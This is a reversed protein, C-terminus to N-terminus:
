EKKQERKNKHATIITRSSANVTIVCGDIRIYWNKGAREMQANEDLMKTRCWEVPDGELALNRKVRVAGLDTTHLEDIHDTLENRQTM